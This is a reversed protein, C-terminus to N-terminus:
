GLARGVMAVLLFLLGLLIAAAIPVSIVFAVIWARANGRFSPRDDTGM